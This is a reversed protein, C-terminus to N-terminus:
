AAVSEAAGGGGSPIHNRPAEVRAIKDVECSRPPHDLNDVGGAVVIQKEASPTRGQVKDSLFGHPFRHLGDGRFELAPLYVPGVDLPNRILYVPAGSIWDGGEQTGCARPWRSWFKLEGRGALSWPWVPRRVSQRLPRVVGGAAARHARAHRAAAAKVLRGCGLRALAMRVARSGFTRQFIAGPGLWSCWGRCHLCSRRIHTEPLTAVIVSSARYTGALAPTTTLKFHSRSEARNRHGSRM